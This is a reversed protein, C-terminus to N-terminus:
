PRGEVQARLDAYAECLDIAAATVDVVRRANELTDTQQQLKDDISRRQSLLEDANSRKLASALRSIEANNAALRRERDAINVERKAISAQLTGNKKTLKSIQDRLKNARKTEGAADADTIQRRKEAILRQNSQIRSEEKAKKKHAGRNDGQLGRNKKELARMQKEFGAADGLDQDIDAIQRRLPMLVREDYNRFRADFTSRESEHVEEYQDCDAYDAMAPFALFLPATVLVLRKM